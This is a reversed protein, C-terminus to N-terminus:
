HSGADPVSATRLARLDSRAALAAAAAVLLLVGATAWELAGSGADPDIRFVAEIWEPWVLALVGLVLGAVALAAELRLRRRSPPVHRSM